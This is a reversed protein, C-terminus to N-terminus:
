LKDIQFVLINDFHTFFILPPLKFFIQIRKLYKQNINNKKYCKNNLTLKM